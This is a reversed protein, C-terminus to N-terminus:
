LEPQHLRQGTTKQPPHRRHTLCRTAGGRTTERETHRTAPNPTTSTTSRPNSIRPDRPEEEQKLSRRHDGFTVHQTRTLIHTKTSRERATTWHCRTPTAAM